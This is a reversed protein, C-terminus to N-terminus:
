SATSTTSYKKEHVHKKLNVIEVAEFRRKIIAWATDLPAREQREAGTLFEEVGLYRGTAGNRPCRVKISNKRCFSHVKDREAKSPFEAKTKESPKGPKM